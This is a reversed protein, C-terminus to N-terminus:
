DHDSVRPLAPRDKLGECLFAPGQARGFNKLEALLVNRRKAQGGDVAINALHGMLARKDTDLVRPLGCEEFQRGPFEKRVKDTPTATLNIVKITFHGRNGVIRRLIKDDLALFKDKVPM